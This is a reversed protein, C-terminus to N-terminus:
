VGGKEAAALTDRVMSDQLMTLPVFSQKPETGEIILSTVDPATQYIAEEVMEKLAEATSGCGHGNAHLRLRVAGEEVRLLEVDGERARLKPGVKDLAQSVRGELSVPHLGYLVLLSSVLEDRGLKQVMTEGADGSARILELMREIGAGHLDMVTQVLEQVNSRLSPDAASEIEGLLTEISQLRQQFEPQVPM